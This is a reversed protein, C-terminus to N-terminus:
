VIEELEGIKLFKIIFDFVKKPFWVTVFHEFLENGRLIPHRGSWTDATGTSRLGM